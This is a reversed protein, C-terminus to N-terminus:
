SGNATVPGIPDDPDALPPPSVNVVTRDPMIKFAGGGYGGNGTTTAVEYIVGARLPKAAVTEAAQGLPMPKGKFRQGYLIPFEDVCDNDLREHWYTGYRVRSVDDGLAPRARADGTAIVDIQNICSASQRSNPDVIFALRGGIVVAKIDYTYSCSSLSPVFFLFLLWRRRM